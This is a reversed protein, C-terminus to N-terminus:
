RYMHLEPILWRNMPNQIEGTAESGLIELFESTDLEMSQNILDIFSCNKPLHKVTGRAGLSAGPRLPFATYVSIECLPTGKM